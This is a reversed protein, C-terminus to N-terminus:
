MYTLLTTCVCVCVCVCCAHVCVCLMCVCVCLVCVCVYKSFDYTGRNLATQDEVASSNSPVPIAGVSPLLPFFYKCTCHICPSLSGCRHTHEANNLCVNVNQHNFKPLKCQKLMANIEGIVTCRMVESWLTGYTIFRM